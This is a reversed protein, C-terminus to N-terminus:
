FFSFLFGTACNILILPFCTLLFLFCMLEGWEPVNNKEDHRHPTQNHGDFKEAATTAENLLQAVHDGGGRRDPRSNDNVALLVAPPVLPPDEEKVLFRGEILLGRGVGPSRCYRRSVTRLASRFGICNHVDCLEKKKKSKGNRAIPWQVM